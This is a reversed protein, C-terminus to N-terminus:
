NQAINAYLDCYVCLSPINNLAPKPLYRAARSIMLCLGLVSKYLLDTAVAGLNQTTFFYFINQKTECFSLLLLIALCKWEIHVSCYRHILGVQFLFSSMAVTFSVTIPSKTALSKQSHSSGAHSLSSLSVSDPTTTSEIPGQFTFLSSVYNVRVVSFVWKSQLLFYWQVQGGTQSTQIRGFKYIEIYNLM